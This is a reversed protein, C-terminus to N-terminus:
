LRAPWRLVDRYLHMRARLYAEILLDESLGDKVDLLHTPNWELPHVGRCGLRACTEALGDEVAVREPAGRPACLARDIQDCLAAAAWSYAHEHQM